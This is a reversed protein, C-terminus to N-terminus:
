EKETVSSRVRGKGFKTLISAGLQLSAADKIARGNEDLTISSGRRLVANPDHANVLEQLHGIRTQDARFTAAVSTLMSELIQLLKKDAIRVHLTVLPPMTSVVNEIQSTAKKLNTNSSKTVEQSQSDLSRSEVRVVRSSESAVISANSKLLTSHPDLARDAYALVHHALSEILSAAQKQCTSSATRIQSSLAGLTRQALLVTRLSEISVTTENFRLLAAHMELARRAHALAQDAIGDVHAIANRLNSTASTGVQVSL